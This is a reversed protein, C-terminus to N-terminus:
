EAERASYEAYATAVTAKVSWYSANWVPVPCASEIHKFSRHVGVRSIVGKTLERLALKRPDDVGERVCTAATALAISMQEPTKMDLLWQRAVLAFTGVTYSIEPVVKLALQRARECYDKPKKPSLKKEIEMLSEGQIWMKAHHLILDAIRRGTKDDAAFDKKKIQLLGDFSDILPKSRHIFVRRPDEVLWGHVVDLWGAVDTVERWNFAKLKHHITEVIELPVGARAAADERWDKTGPPKDGWLVRKLQVAETVRQDFQQDRSQSAAIFGSLSRRLLKRSEGEDGVPLRHVFYELDAASVELEPQGAAQKHIADLLTEVPDQVTLCQDALSLVQERLEHWRPGIELRQLDVGVVKGPVVLVIGQPMHGARGARGAANLLEHAALMEAGGAGAEFRDDGAMVVAEAPLNMGQALTPTAVLVKLDKERRFVQEVLEREEPLMLSHHCAAKGDVPLFAHSKDGLEAEIAELLPEDDPSYDSGKKLAHACSKAVASTAKITQVFVLTKLGANGLGTALGAAVEYRNASVGWWNNVGLQTESHALKVLTYNKEDTTNWTQELCMLGFPVAKASASEKVGPRAKGTKRRAARLTGGLEALRSQEYVVCGRAQRTPKWRIDLAICERTTISKVWAAIEEANALMASILVLDCAPASQLVALLCLTADVSRRLSAGRDAHILHFEDFVLLGCNKFMEPSLSALTLCREPTMVAVGGARTLTKEEGLEAYEGGEVFSGSVKYGPFAKRLERMTQSVLAHTPALFVVDRGRLLATAIKLESLASKGAGTPFAVVASVGMNLYGRKLADLHNRWLFPRRAAARRLYGRWAKGDTGPPLPVATLAGAALAGSVGLLLGALEHPGAFGIVTRGGEASFPLLVEAVSSEWVSQFLARAKDVTAGRRGEVAGALLRVGRLLREWLTQLCADFDSGGEPKDGAEGAPPPLAAVASMDGKCVSVLATLLVSTVSSTPSVGVRVAVAAADAFQEAILFLLMGAVDHGVSNPALLAELTSRRAEAQSLLVHASAAVFAASRREPSDPMLVALARYSNAIRRLRDLTESVKQDPQGSLLRASVIQTYARTLDEPLRALDLGELAPASRILEATSADYM